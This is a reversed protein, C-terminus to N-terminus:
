GILTALELSVICAPDAREWGARDGNEAASVVPFMDVRPREVEELAVDPVKGGM